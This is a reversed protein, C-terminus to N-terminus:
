YEISMTLEGDYAFPKAKRGHGRQELLANRNAGPPIPVGNITAAAASLNACSVSLFGPSTTMFPARVSANTFPRDISVVVVTAPGCSGVGTVERVEDGDYIHQGVHVQLTNVANDILAVGPSAADELLIFTDTPSATMLVTANTAPLPICSKSPFGPTVGTVFDQPYHVQAM